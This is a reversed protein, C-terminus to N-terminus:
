GEPSPKSAEDIASILERFSPAEDIPWASALAVAFLDPERHAALTVDVVGEIPLQPAFQNM